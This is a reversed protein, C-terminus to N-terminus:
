FFYAIHLLTTQESIHCWGLYFLFPMAFVIAIKKDSHYFFLEDLNM